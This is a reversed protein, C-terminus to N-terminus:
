KNGPEKSLGRGTVIPLRQSLRRLGMITEMEPPNGFLFSSSFKYNKL